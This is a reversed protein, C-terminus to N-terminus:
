RLHPPRGGPLLRVEYEGDPLADLQRQSLCLGWTEEYYSTRYPVWDPRDPLSHLHPRLQDLTMRARVPVSYSVLHLNSSQFDIVRDGVANKVYADRVNWERPVTWDFVSTGTPVEHLALPAHKDLRRLTERTGDGTISRCLPYLDAM